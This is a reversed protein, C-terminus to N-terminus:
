LARIDFIVIAVTPTLPNVREREREREREGSAKADASLRARPDSRPLQLVMGVQPWYLAERRGGQVGAM